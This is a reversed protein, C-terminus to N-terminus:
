AAIKRRPEAALRGDNAALRGDNAALRGDNATLSGDNAIMEQLLHLKAEEFWHALSPEMRWTKWQVMEAGMGWIINCSILEIVDPHDFYSTHVLERGSLEKCFADMGHLLSAEGLLRRLKPAIDRAHRDATALIQGNISEPLPPVRDRLEGIPSPTVDIITATPRDNGQASRTVMNRVLRDVPPQIWHNFVPAFLWFYPRSLLGISDSLFVREQPMM